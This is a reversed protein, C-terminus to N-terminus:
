ILEKQKNKFIANAVRYESNNNIRQLSHNYIMTTVINKHRLLQQTEELTGGNLLNITATTHRLSHASLRCSTFGNQKLLEKIITRLTRTSLRNGKSNNSYSTFLADTKSKGPLLILYDRIAKYVEPTIKVYETKDLNGKGQIFLVTNDGIIRIDEVNTRTVEITRLGTTVLLLFIAYNRRHIVTKNDMNKLIEYVQLATLVDKKHTKDIKINKIECAINKYISEKELWYFFNKIITLYLSVTAPKTRRMLELKFNLIDEKTPLTIRNKLLFLYFQKLIRIYTTNTSESADVYRLWRTYIIESFIHKNLYDYDRDKKEITFM